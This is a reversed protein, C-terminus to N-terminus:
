IYYFLLTIYLIKLFDNGYAVGVLKMKFIYVGPCFLYYYNFFYYDKKKKKKLHALGFIAFNDKLPRLWKLWLDSTLFSALIVCSHQEM